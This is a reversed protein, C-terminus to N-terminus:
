RRRLANRSAKWLMVVDPQRILGAILLTLIGALAGLALQWAAQLHRIESPWHSALGEAVLSFGILCATLLGLRAIERALGAHWRMRLIHAAALLSLLASLLISFAAAWAVGAAGHREVWLLCLSAHVVVGLLGISVQLWPRVAAHLVRYNFYAFARFVLGLSMIATLQATLQTDEATFEGRELLLAMAPEAFLYLLVASPLTLFLVFRVGDAFRDAAERWEGRAFHRGLAPYYTTIVAQAFVELPLMAFMSAYAMASITGQDGGSLFYQNILGTLVSGASGVLLPLLHAAPARFDPHRLDWAPRVSDRLLDRNGWLLVGAQLLFGSLVGWMLATVGLQRGLWIIALLVTINTLVGELAPLTFRELANSIASLISSLTLIPVCPLLLRTMRVADAQTEAALGPALFGVLAEAYWGMALSALVALGLILTFLTNAGRWVAVGRRGELSAMFRPVFAVTIVTTLLAPLLTPLSYAVWFADLSAGAGFLGAILMTKGIAMFKSLGNLLSLHIAHRHNM